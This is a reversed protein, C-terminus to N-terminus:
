SKEKTKIIFFPLEHQIFCPERELFNKDCTYVSDEWYSNWDRKKCDIMVFFLSLFSPDSFMLPHQYADVLLEWLIRKNSRRSSDTLRISGGCSWLPWCFLVQGPFIQWREYITYKEHNSTRSHLVRMCLTKTYLTKQLFTLIM